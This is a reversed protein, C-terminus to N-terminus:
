RKEREQTRMGAVASRTQGDPEAAGHLDRTAELERAHAQEEPAESHQADAEVQEVPARYRQLRGLRRHATRHLRPGAHAIHEHHEVGLLHHTRRRRTPKLPTPRPDVRDLLLHPRHPGRLGRLEAGLHELRGGKHNHRLRRIRCLLHLAVQPQQLPKHAAAARQQQLKRLPREARGKRCVALTAPPRRSRDRRDIPHRGVHRYRQQLHREKGPKHTRRPRRLLRDTEERHVARRHDVRRPAAIACDHHHVEVESRLYRRQLLPKWRAIPPQLRPHRAIRQVGGVEDSGRRECRRCCGIGVQKLGVDDMHRHPKGRRHHRQPGERATRRTRQQAAMIRDGIRAAGEPHRRVLLRQIRPSGGEQGRAAVGLCRMRRYRHILLDRPLRRHEPNGRRGMHGRVLPKAEEPHLRHLLPEREGVLEATQLRDHSFLIGNAPRAGLAPAPHAIRKFGIPHHGRLLHAVRHAVLRQRACPQPKAEAGTLGERRDVAVTQGERQELHRDARGIRRPGIGLGVQRLHYLICRLSAPGHM